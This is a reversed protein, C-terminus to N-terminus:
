GIVMGVLVCMGLFRLGYYTAEAQDFHEVRQIFERNSDLVYRSFATLLGIAVLALLIKIGGMIVVSGM